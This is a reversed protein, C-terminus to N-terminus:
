VMVALRAPRGPRDIGAPKTSPRGTPTCSSAGYKWSPRRSLTAWWYWCAVSQCLCAGAPNQPVRVHLPFGHDPQFDVCLEAGLRLNEGAAGGGEAGLGVGLGAQNVEAHGAGQRYQVRFGHAHGALEAQGDVRVDGPLVDEGALVVEIRVQGLAVLGALHVMGDDALAEEVDGQFGTGDLADADGARVQFLVGALAQM